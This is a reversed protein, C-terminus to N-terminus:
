GTTKVVRGTKAGCAAVMDGDLSLGAVIVVGVTSAVEGEVDGADIGDAEIVLSGEGIFTGVPIGIAESTEIAEADTDALFICSHNM